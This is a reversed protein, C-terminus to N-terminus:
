VVKYYLGIPTVAMNGAMANTINIVITDHFPIERTLLVVALTSLENHYAISLLDHAGNVNGSGQNPDLSLYQFVSGDVILRMASELYGAGFAYSIRAMVLVGQGDISLVTTTAGAIAFMADGGALIATGYKPWISTGFYDPYGKAM